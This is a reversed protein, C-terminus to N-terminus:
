EESVDGDPVLEKAKRMAKFADEETILLYVQEGQDHHKLKKFQYHHESSPFSMNQDKIKCGHPCVYLNSLPNNGGQFIEVSDALADPAKALCVQDGPHHGTKGCCKYTTMAIPKFVHAQEGAVELVMPLKTVDALAIYIFHDGNLITMPKGNYWVNSYCVESQVLCIEKLAELTEENSVKHLPSDKLTVKVSEQCQPNLQSRLMIQKGAVM